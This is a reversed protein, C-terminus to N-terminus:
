DPADFSLLHGEWHAPRPFPAPVRFLPCSDLNSKIARSRRHAEKHPIDVFNQPLFLKLHLRQLFFNLRQPYCGRQEADKVTLLATLPVEFTKGCVTCAAVAPTRGCPAGSKVRIECLFPPVNGKWRTFSMM